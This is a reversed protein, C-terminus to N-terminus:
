AAKTPVLLASGCKDALPVVLWGPTSAIFRDVALRAGPWANYDHVLIFGGRALRPSFFALGATIPEELDADLHVFAFSEREQTPTVSGPFWGPVPIVNANIPAIHALVLPVSTDAFDATKNYTFDVTEREMDAPSFGTFTDFLYLRREPAFHHLLRASGGRHVGLEAMAGPVAHVELERLLLVIQDSRVQDHPFCPEYRRAKGPPSFGGFCAVFAANHWRSDPAIDMLSQITAGHAAAQKIQRESIPRARRSGLVRRLLNELGLLRLARTFVRKLLTSSTTSM